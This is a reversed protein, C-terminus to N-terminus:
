GTRLEKEGPTPFSPTVAAGELRPHLRQREREVAAAAEAGRDELLRTVLDGDKRVAWCGIVEGGWWITPGVNGFADYHPRPDEPLFWGREKWGMPTPDLAPLLTATPEPVTVPDTDEPHVLLGDVEVAGAGALARRTV